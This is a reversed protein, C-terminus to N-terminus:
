NSSLNVTWGPGAYMPDCLMAAITLTLPAYFSTIFTSPGNMFTCHAVRPRSCPMSNSWVGMAANGTCATVSSQETYGSVYDICVPEGSNNFTCSLPPPTSSCGLLFVLVCILKKM